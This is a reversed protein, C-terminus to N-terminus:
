REVSDEEVVSVRVTQVDFVLGLKDALDDATPADGTGVIRVSVEDDEIELSEVRYGTNSTWAQAIENAASLRRASEVSRQSAGVLLLFVAVGMIAVMGNWVRRAQAGVETSGCNGLGMLLYVVSGTVQIAVFNAAFLLLAGGAQAFSGELLSAGAVCLPPVIAASTAVGPAANPIDSRMSGVAAMFGAALAIILDVLRPATRSLVQENTTVDIGIPIVATVVASSALVLAVSLLTLGLCRLAERPRGVALGLSIGLMPSMLPAVLMAGIITAPANAAISGTAIVTAAALRLFYASYQRLPDDVVVFGAREASRLAEQTLEGGLLVQRVSTMWAVGM